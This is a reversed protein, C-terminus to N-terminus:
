SAAGLTAVGTVINITDVTNNVNDGGYLIGDEFLLTGEEASGNFAGVLTPAGTSTNLTYLDAGNAFYLTASNNSLSRWSGLSLGTSGVLTAAGSSPNISYLNASTDVAWMGGTTSGFDDVDIGTTGISTLAGNSPNVNYLTSGAHYSTACISGNAVALGALTQGSNGASSFAGSNLDTIGFPGRNVGAYAMDDAQLCVSSLAFFIVLTSRFMINSIRRV